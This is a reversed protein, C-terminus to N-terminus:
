IEWYKLISNNTKHEWSSWKVIQSAFHRRSAWPPCHDFCSMIIKSTVEHTEDEVSIGTGAGKSQQHVTGYALGSFKASCTGIENKENVFFVQSIKQPPVQFAYVKYGDRKMRDVAKELLDNQFNVNKRQKELSEKEEKLSELLYYTDSTVTNKTCEAAISGTLMILAADYNWDPNNVAKRLDNFADTVEQSYNNLILTTDM